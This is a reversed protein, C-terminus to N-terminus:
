CEDPMKMQDINQNSCHNVVIGLFVNSDAETM